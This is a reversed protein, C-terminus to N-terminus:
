VLSGFGALVKLLYDENWGAVLRKGKISRKL